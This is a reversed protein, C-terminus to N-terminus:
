AGACFLAAEALAVVVDVSGAASGVDASGGEWCAGVVVVPAGCGGGACAGGTVVVVVVFTTM